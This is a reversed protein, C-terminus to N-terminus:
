NRLELGRRSAWAPVRPCIGWENTEFCVNTDFHTAKSFHPGNPIPDNGRNRFLSCLLLLWQRVWSVIFAKWLKCSCITSRFCLCAFLFVFGLFFFVSLQMEHTVMMKQQCGEQMHPAGHRLASLCSITPELLLPTIYSRSIFPKLCSSCSQATAPGLTLLQRGYNVSANQESVEWCLHCRIHGEFELYAVGLTEDIFCCAVLNSPVIM